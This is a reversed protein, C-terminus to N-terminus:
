PVVDDFSFVTSCTTSQVVNVVFLRSFLHLPAALSKSVQSLMRCSSYAPKKKSFKSIILDRTMKQTPAAAPVETGEQGSGPVDQSGNNDTQTTRSTSGQNKRSPRNTNSATLTGASPQHKDEQQTIMREVQVVTDFRKWNQTVQASYSQKGSCLM